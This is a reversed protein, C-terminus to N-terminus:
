PAVEKLGTIRVWTGISFGYTSAKVHISTIPDTSAEWLWVSDNHRQSYGGHISRVMKHMGAVSPNFIYMEGIAQELGTVPVGSNITWIGPADLNSSGSSLGVAYFTHGRYNTNVEDSNFYVYMTSAATHYIQGEFDIKILPYPSLDLGTFDFSDGNSAITGEAVIEYVMQTLLPSEYTAPVYKADLYSIVAGVNAQTQVNDFIMIEYLDVASGAGFTINTPDGTGVDGYYTVGNVTLSSSSGNVNMNVTYLGPELIPGTITGGGSTMSLYGGDNFLQGSGPTAGDLILEGEQTQILEFVLFVSYPQELTYGSTYLYDDIGDFSIANKGGQKNTKLTPRTTDDGGATLDKGGGKGNGKVKGVPDNNNAETTGATDTYVFGQDAIWWGVLDADSWGGARKIGLRVPYSM